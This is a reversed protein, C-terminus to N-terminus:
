KFWLRKRAAAPLLQPGGCGKGAEGVAALLLREAPNDLDAFVDGTEPDRGISVPGLMAALLQRTSGKDGTEQLAQELQLLKRRWRANFDPLTPAVSTQVGTALRRELEDREAEAAQLRGALAASIGITVVADVLRSIEAQVANLRRRLADVDGGSSRKHEALWARAAAHVEAQAEASLLEDRLEGLLRADLVHRLVAATNSCVADGRDKRVGCAYRRADVVNVPGGCEACRLIGGGGFLSRPTGGRGTRIGRTPGTRTAGRAREWLEQPVIRLSEDVRVQWEPRPNDVYRRAGTDPDKLWKRRNWIVRGVYLENNLLGLGKLSNGALASVAWTGGRPSPVGRANLDHVITRAGDGDAFRRFIELVIAAQV